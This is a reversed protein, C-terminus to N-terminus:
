RIDQVLSVEKMSIYSNSEGSGLTHTPRFVSNSESTIALAAATQTFDEQERYNADAVNLNIGTTTEDVGLGAM